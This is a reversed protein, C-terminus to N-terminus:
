KLKKSVVYYDYPQVGKSMSNKKEKEALADKKNSYVSVIEIGALRYRSHMRVLIYVM